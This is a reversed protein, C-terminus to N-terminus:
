SDLIAPFIKKINCLTLSHCFFLYIPILAASGFLCGALSGCLKFKKQPLLIKKKVTYKDKPLLVDFLRNTPTELYNNDM